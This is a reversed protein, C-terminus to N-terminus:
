DEPFLRTYTRADKSQVWATTTELYREFHATKRHVDAFTAEDPYAECLTFRRADGPAQLVDFRLCSEEKALCTRAHTLIAERYRDEFGDKVLIDVIIVYM